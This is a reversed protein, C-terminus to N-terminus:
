ILPLTAMSAVLLQTTRETAFSLKFNALKNCARFNINAILANAYTQEYYFVIMRSGLHTFM